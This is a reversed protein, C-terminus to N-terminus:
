EIRKKTECTQQRNSRRSGPREEVRLCNAVPRQGRARGGANGVSSIFVAAKEQAGSKDHQAAPWQARTSSRATLRQYPEGQADNLVANLADNQSLWVEPPGEFDEDM